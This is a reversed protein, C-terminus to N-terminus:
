IKNLIEDMEEEKARIVPEEMPKPIDEEAIIDSDPEPEDEEDEKDPEETVKMESRMSSPRM